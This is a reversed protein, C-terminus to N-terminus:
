FAPVIAGKYEEEIYQKIKDSNLAEMLKQFKAEGEEGARVVVINAYPSDQDEILLGDNVPNLGAEIAFNSNIFAADADQYTRAIAAAEMPIFQFNKPNETVNVETVNINTPDDLKILGQKELLLLGRAGNTVDNPLMISAGEPIEELSEYKASYLAIPEVHVKGVVKLDLNNKEMFDILYPEHQFFNADIEGADLAKNPIVYDDFTKIELTIGEAALDEKVQEVIGEHPAPSVGIVITQNEAGGAEEAPAKKDAEKSGCATLALAAATLLLLLKKKM